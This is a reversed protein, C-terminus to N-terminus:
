KVSLMEERTVLRIGKRFNCPWCLPQINDISDKGGKSIPIIHDRQIKEESGCFACKGGFQARLNEWEEKTHSGGNLKIRELRRALMAKQRQWTSSYLRVELRLKEAAAKKKLKERERKVRLRARLAYRKNVEAMRKRARARCVSRPLM